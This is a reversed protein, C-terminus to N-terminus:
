TRVTRNSSTMNTNRKLTDMVTKAIDDASANSGANVTINYTSGMTGNNQSAPIIREGKHIQAIMDHPVFNTGIDFSPLKILGGNARGLNKIGSLTGEPDLLALANHLSEGSGTNLGGTHVLANKGSSYIANLIADKNLLNHRFAYAGGPIRRTKSGGEQLLINRAGEIDGKEILTKIYQKLFEPSTKSLAAAGERIDVVNLKSKNLLLEYVSSNPGNKELYSKAVDKSSTGFLDLGFWNQSQYNLIDKSDINKGNFKIPPTKLLARNSIKDIIGGHYFPNSLIGSLPDKSGEKAVFEEFGHMKNYLDIAPKGIIKKTGIDLIDINPAKIGYKNIIKKTASGAVSGYYYRNKVFKNPNTSYKLQNIKVIDEYLPNGEEISHSPSYPLNETGKKIWNGNIEEYGAKDLKDLLPALNAQLKKLGETNKTLGLEAQGKRFGYGFGGLTNDHPHLPPAKLEKFAAAMKEIGSFAGKEALASHAMKLPTLVKGFPIFNSGIQLTNIIGRMIMAHTQKDAPLKMIDAYIKKNGPTHPAVRPASESIGAFSNAWNKIAYGANVGTQEIGSTFAWDANDLLGGPIGKIAGWISSLISSKKKGKHSLAAAAINDSSSLGIRGLGRLTNRLIGSGLVNAVVGGPSGGAFRKANVSDFFETGYHKVSDAKVVYEGNSLYAPISDSTATGAGRIHGGTALKKVNAVSFNPPINPDPDIIQWKKGSKDTFITGIDQPIRNAFLDTRLIDYGSHGNLPGWKLISGSKLKYTAVAGPNDLTQSHPSPTDPGVIGVDYYHAQGKKWNYQRNDYIFGGVQPVDANQSVIWDRAPDSLTQYDNGKDDKKTVTWNKGKYGAARAAKETINNKDPILTGGTIGGVPKPVDKKKTNNNVATTNNDIATTNADIKEKNKAIREEITAVLSAASDYANQMENTKGQSVFSVTNAAKQQQLLSAKLFDGSAQALRIQNDLDAQSLSYQQQRQLEATTDKQIKLAAALTKEKAKATDLLKKDADIAKQLQANNKILPANIAIQSSTLTGSASAAQKLAETMADFIPGKKAAIEKSLEDPTINLQKKKLDTKGKGSLDITYGANILKQITEFDGVGNYGMRSILALLQASKADGIGMLYQYLGAVTQTASLGSSNIGDLVAKFQEWSSTNIALNSIEGLKATLTKADGSSDQLLKKIAGMQTTASSSASAASSGHGSLTLILQILKDAQDKSIGNIAMQTNAFDQAIKTAAGSDHLGKLNQVVLSLPDNAPLSAIAKKFADLESNTYKIGQALTNVKNTVEAVPSTFNSMTHSVNAVSIGFMDAVTKSATFTAEAEAKHLKEMAILKGIGSTVLGIAAGAAIGWPGFGAGMSAGQMAGSMVDGGPLKQILPAAMQTLMTAGMSLGMRGMPGMDSMKGMMGKFRSTAGFAKNFRGQVTKDVTDGINAAEKEVGTKGEKLGTKVGGIFDKASRIGKKSDSNAHIGEPSNFGEDVSKGLDAGAKKLLAKEKLFVTYQSYETKPVSGGALAAAGSLSNGKVAVSNRGSRNGSKETRYGLQAPGFIADAAAPDKERAFTEFVSGFLNSNAKEGGSKSPDAIIRKGSGKQKKLEKIFRRDLEAAAAPIDAESIGLDELLTRYAVVPDHKVNRRGIIKGGSSMSERGPPFLDTAKGKLYKIVKDIALVGDNAFQNMESHWAAVAGSKVSTSGIGRESLTPPLNQKLSEQESMPLDSVRPSNYRRGGSIVLDSLHAFQRNGQGGLNERQQNEIDSRTVKLGDIYGPLKGSIIANLFPAYQAAQKAPVVAEGGTLLAPHIDGQSPNGDVYGGTAMKKGFGPMGPLLLKSEAKLAIGEITGVTSVANVSELNVILTRLAANLNDVALVNSMLGENFLDTAAKAAVGAPTMLDKWKKTGNIVGLLSYGVRMVQGMLNAFLGTIMIVPGAIAGLTLLVGLGTKIPGPLGNFFSAIKAGFNMISTAVEMIKQGIPILDSKLTEVARKFRGTTSETAIKMENAAVAALQPATSGALDFAAKTQSNVAGLNSILAQIRAEQFKGFLKEILQAQALPALGKLATQLQMIMQIPNGGTNSAIGALDIGFGQFAAKAQKTPNIMSAIASKIANASQAAPVGAEKMAVMMVATDKFSGGLQAVIPGVRPIGAALDQLSTSTQNEVANLFNIAGSLEGTSLKYVNQLAITTQMASQTDMEGLKSLRMAERTAVLLDNGTKGTAALDAAMAATDKAAIGMSRALEQSLGTVQKKITDLAAQSPATLGTGYVKQMRVLESNVDQFVKMAQSGFLMVPMSLGVTLQRGAWQTNKGFNILQNSGERVALNFINQKAAAIETAKAVKNITTPTYVTYMGQKTIDAQVISNNLKVQQVALAEVSKKAEASKGTIIGFYQGLSLKGSELAKGFKETESTLQVTQSTFNGASLMSSKFQNQIDVLQSKLQSSIGVGAVSKNIGDIQIQLAKLQQTISSFDGTGTIKLQINSM